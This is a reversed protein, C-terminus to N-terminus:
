FKVSFIPMKSELYTCGNRRSFSSCPGIKTGYKVRFLLKGPIKRPIEQSFSKELSKQPFIGNGGVNKQLFNASIASKL